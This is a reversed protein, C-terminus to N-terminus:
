PRPILDLLGQTGEIMEGIGAIAGGIAKLLDLIGQLIKKIDDLAKDIPGKEEAPTKPDAKKKELQEKITALNKILEETTVEQTKDTQKDAM